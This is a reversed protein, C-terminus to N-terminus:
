MPRVVVAEGEWKVWRRREIYGWAPVDMSLIGSGAKEM